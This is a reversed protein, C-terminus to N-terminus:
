LSFNHESNFQQSWTTSTKTPSYYKLIWNKNRSRPLHRTVYFTFNDHLTHFGHVEDFSWSAMDSLNVKNITLAFSTMLILGYLNQLLWDFKTHAALWFTLGINCQVMKELSKCSKIQWLFQYLTVYWQLRNSFFCCMAHKPSSNSFECHHWFKTLHVLRHLLSNGTCQFLKWCLM